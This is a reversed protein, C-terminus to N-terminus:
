RWRRNTQCGLLGLVFIGGIIFNRAVDAFHGLIILFGLFALVLVYQAPELVVGLALGAWVFHTAALLKIAVSALFIGAGRWMEKSWVIGQSFSIALHQFPKSPRAPVRNILRMVFSDQSLMRRKYVLLALTLFVFLALSGAGSWILGTRIRGTPDSFVAALLAVPVLCAFVVGDAIRDLGATAFM